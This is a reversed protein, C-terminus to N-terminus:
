KLDSKKKVEVKEKKKSDEKVPHAKKFEMQAQRHKLKLNRIMKRHDSKMKIRNKFNGELGALEKKQAKKLEVIEMNQKKRLERLTSVEAEIKGKAANDGEMVKASSSSKVIAAKTGTSKKIDEANLISIALFCSVAFILIRM